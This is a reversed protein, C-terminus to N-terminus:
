CSSYGGRLAGWSPARFVSVSLFFVLFFLRFHSSSSLQATPELRRLLWIGCRRWIRRRHACVFILPPCPQRQQQTPVGSHSDMHSRGLPLEHPFVKEAALQQELSITVEASMESMMDSDAIQAVGCRSLSAVPSADAAAGTCWRQWPMPSSNEFSRWRRGALSRVTLLETPACPHPPPAM